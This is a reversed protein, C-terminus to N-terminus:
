RAAEPWFPHAYTFKTSTRCNSCGGSYTVLIEGGEAGYIEYDERFTRFENHDEANDAEARAQDAAARLADFEGVPVKGYAEVVAEEMDLAKKERDHQCKPCVAWNDASM